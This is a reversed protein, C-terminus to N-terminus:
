SRAGQQRRIRSACRCRTAIPRTRRGARHRRRLSAGALGDLRGTIERNLSADERDTVKLKEYKTGDYLAPGTFSYSDVNFYSRKVPPRDHLIQAYPAVSWPAQSGNTVAYEVDIRYSGRRFVLTKVLSM